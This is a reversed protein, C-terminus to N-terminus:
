LHSSEIRNNLYRGTQQKAENGIDKMAAGYSALGDTVIVKPNGYRKMAKKLF